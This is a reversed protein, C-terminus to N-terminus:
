KNKNNNNKKMYLTVMYKYNKHMQKTNIGSKKRKM